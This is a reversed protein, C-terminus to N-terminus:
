ARKSKILQGAYMGVFSLILAGIIVPMFDFGITAVRTNRGSQDIAQMRALNVYVIQILTFFVAYIAMQQVNLTVKTAVFYGIGVLIALTIIVLIIKDAFIDKGINMSDKDDRYKETINFSGFLSTGWSASAIGWKMLTSGVQSSFEDFEKNSTLIAFLTHVVIGATTAAIAYFALQVTQVKENTSKIILQYNLMFYIVGFSTLLSLIFGTGVLGFISFSTLLEYKETDYYEYEVSFNYRSLFAIIAMFITYTGTIFIVGHQLHWNNKKALVGYVISGIILALIPFILLFFAARYSEKENDDDESSKMTIEFTGNNMAGVVSSVLPFKEIHVDAEDGYEYEVQEELESEDLYDELNFEYLEYVIGPKDEVKGAIIFAFILSLIVPIIAAVLMIPKSKATAIIEKTKYAIAEKTVQEKITSAVDPITSFSQGIIQDLKGKKKEVVQMNVGCKKCYTYADKNPTGCEVCFEQTKYTHNHQENLEIKLGTNPCFTAFKEHQQGCHPCNM